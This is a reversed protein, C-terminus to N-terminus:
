YASMLSLSLNEWFYIDHLVQSTLWQILGPGQHNDRTVAKYPGLILYILGPDHIYLGPGLM